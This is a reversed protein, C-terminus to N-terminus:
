NILRLNFPYRYSGGASVRVAALICLVLNVVWLLWSLFAGILIIALVWCIVYGILVTLQFNLAERAEETLYAKEPKDKNMLWVVLPVIISLIFGSLHTLLAINRDDPSAGPPPEPPPPTYAKAGEPPPEPPGGPPPEPPPSSPPIQDSPTNM